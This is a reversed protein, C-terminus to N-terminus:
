KCYIKLKKGERIINVKNTSQINDLINEVAEWRNLKGGFLLNKARSDEFVPDVDFWKSLRNMIIELREGRFNYVGDVWSIYQAVNVERIDVNDLINNVNAQQGPVLILEDPNDVLLKIAVAGGALTTQTEEEDSYARINFATGLVRVEQEETLVVFPKQANKSVQFFAEGHLQTKREKDVDIDGRFVLSSLSNLHISTRDSLTVKYLYGRPIILMTKQNSLRNKKEFYIASRTPHNVIGDTILSDDSLCLDIQTGDELILTPHAFSAIEFSNSKQFFITYSIVLICSVALFLAAVRGLQSFLSRKWDVNLKKQVMRWGKIRDSDAHLRAWEKFRGADRVSIYAVHNERSQVLWEDLDFRQEDTLEDFVDKIILTSLHEIDIEKNM